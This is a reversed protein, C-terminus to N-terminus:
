GLATGFAAWPTVRLRWGFWETRRTPDLSGLVDGRTLLQIERQIEVTRQPPQVFEIPVHKQQAGPM